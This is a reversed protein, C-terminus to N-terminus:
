QHRISPPPYLFLNMSRLTMRLTTLIHLLIQPYMRPSLLIPIPIQMQKLGCRASPHRREQLDLVETSHVMPETKLFVDAAEFLLKGLVRTYVVQGVIPNLSHQPAQIHHLTDYVLLLTPVVKSSHIEDQGQHLAQVQPLAKYVLKNHVPARIRRDVTKYDCRM